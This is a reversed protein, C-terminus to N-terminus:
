KWIPAEPSWDGQTTCHLSATRLFGYGPDCHYFVEKGPSINKNNPTHKGHPIEPLSQCRECVPVSTNWISEVGHLVCHSSSSGKLQYGENCVFSVKAGLQLNLPFLVHGNPLQEPFPDCPKEMFCSPVEPEWRNLSQCHVSSAGRMTFGPQCKFEVIDRLSFLSRNETVMVANEVHPPPICKNREICQPSPSSWVGTQDDHTTCHIASQGVLNFLPSGIENLLCYYHVAMGYEYHEKTPSYFGNAIGSPM